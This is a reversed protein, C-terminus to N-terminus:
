KDQWFDIKIGGGICFNAGAFFARKVEQIGKWFASADYTVQVNQWLRRFVAVVM